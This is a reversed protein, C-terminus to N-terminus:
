KLTQAAADIAAAMYKAFTGDKLGGQARGCDAVHSGFFPEAMLFVSKSNKFASWGNTTHRPLRHLAAWADDACAPLIGRNHYGSLECWCDLWAKAVAASKASPAYYLCEAGRAEPVSSNFHLEVTLDAGTTNAARASYSPTNGGACARETRCVEYGLETLWAAVEAIYSRAFDYESVGNTVLAAGPKSPAHGPMLCIKM